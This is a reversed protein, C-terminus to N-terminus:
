LLLSILRSPLSLDQPQLPYMWWGHSAHSRRLRRTMALCCASWSTSALTCRVGITTTFGGSRRTSEARAEAAEAPTLPTDREAEQEVVVARETEAIRTAEALSERVRQAQYDLRKGAKEADAKDLLVRAGRADAVLWALIRLLSKGSPTPQAEAAVANIVDSAVVLLEDTLTDLLAPPPSSV